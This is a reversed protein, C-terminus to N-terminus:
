GVFEYDVGLARYTREARRDRTLLLMQNSRAAAGVLADFVAGGVITLSALEDLLDEWADAPLWCPTPFLRKLAHRAETAGLRLPIPLRTLVSYTEFAAHGSLACRKGVVAARSVEHGVDNPDLAALALSSDVASRKASSSM